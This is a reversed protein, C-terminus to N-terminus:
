LGTTLSVQVEIGATKSLGLHHSESCYSFQTIAQPPLRIYGNKTSQQCHDVFAERWNLKSFRLIYVGVSGLTRLFQYESGADEPRQLRPGYGYAPGLDQFTREDILYAWSHLVYTRAADQINPGISGNSPRLIVCSQSAPREHPAQGREWDLIAISDNSCVDEHVVFRHTCGNPWTWLLLKCPREPSSTPGGYYIEIPYWRRIEPISSEFRRIGSLLVPPQIIVGDQSQGGVPLRAAELIETLGYFALDICHGDNWSSVQLDDKKSLALTPASCVEEYDLGLGDGLQLLIDAVGRHLNRLYQDATLAKHAQHFVDILSISYDPRITTVIPDDSPFLSLISFIKDRPDSCQSTLSLKLIELSDEWSRTAYFSKRGFQMFKPRDDKEPGHWSLWHKELEDFRLSSAGCYIVVDQALLLEQRIWARDWYPYSNLEDWYTRAEKSDLRNMRSLKTLTNGPGLCAAVLDAQRFIDGMRAVQVGKEALDDQNISIRDIWLHSGPSKSRLQWLAHWCNMRTPM